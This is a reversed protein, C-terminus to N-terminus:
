RVRQRDSRVPPDDTATRLCPLIERGFFEIADLNPFWHMGGVYAVGRAPSENPRFEDVDVGNPVIAVRCGSRHGASRRSGTRIGHREAGGAPVM